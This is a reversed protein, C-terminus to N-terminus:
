IHVKPAKLVDQVERFWHYATHPSWSFSHSLLRPNRAALEDSALVSSPPSHATYITFNGSLFHIFPMPMAGIQQLACMFTCRPPSKCHSPRKCPKTEILMDLILVLRRILDWFSPFCRYFLLTLIFLTLFFISLYILILIHDLSLYDHPLQNNGKVWTM